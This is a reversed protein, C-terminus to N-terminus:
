IPLILQLVQHGSQSIFDPQASKPQPNNRPHRKQGFREISSARLIDDEKTRRIPITGDPCKGNLHWLQTIPKSEKESNSTVKRESFHKDPHFNPRVQLCYM